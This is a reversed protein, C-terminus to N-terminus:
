PFQTSTMLDQFLENYDMNSYYNMYAELSGFRFIVYAFSLAYLVATFALALSGLILAVQAKTGYHMQGGRSLTAFIIALAGCPISLYLCTCSLVAISALVLSTMELRDSGPHFHYPQQQM